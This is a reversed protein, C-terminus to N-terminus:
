SQWDDHRQIRGLQAFKEVHEVGNRRHMVPGVRHIGAAKGAADLELIHRKGVIALPRRDRSQVKRRQRALGHRQHARGAGAFRRRKRQQMAGEIRLGPAIVISPM